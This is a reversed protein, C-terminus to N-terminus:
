PVWLQEARTVVGSELTVLFPFPTWEFGSRDAPGGALLLRVTRADVAYSVAPDTLDAVTVPTDDAITAVAPAAPEVYYDNLCEEGLGQAAAWAQCFAGFRAKSLVFVLEGSGQTLIGEGWYLGDPLVNDFPIDATQDPVVPPPVIRWAQSGACGALALLLVSGLVARVLRRRPQLVASLARRGFLDVM